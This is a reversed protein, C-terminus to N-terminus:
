STRLHEWDRILSHQDHDLPIVMPIGALALTVTRGGTALTARSVTRGHAALREWTRAHMPYALVSVIDQAEFLAAYALVQHVDHRHEARLEESLAIWRSEDLDQFHGKYKADIVFVTNAHRVVLDPVLSTISSRAPGSWQVSINTQKAYGSRVEGGFGRAWLRVVHEIWREFLMHM